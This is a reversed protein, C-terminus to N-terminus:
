AVQGLTPRRLLRLACQGAGAVLHRAPEAATVVVLIVVVVVTAAVAVVACAPAPGLPDTRAPRPAGAGAGAVAGTFAGGASATVPLTPPPGRAVVTVASATRRRCRGHM